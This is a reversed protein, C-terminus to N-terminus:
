HGFARLGLGGALAVGWVLGLIVHGVRKPLFFLLFVQDAIAVLTFFLFVFFDFNGPDDAREGTVEAQRVARGPIELLFPWLVLAASFAYDDTGLPDAGVVLITAPLLLLVPVGLVALLRAHWRYDNSKTAALCDWVLSAYEFRFRLFNESFRKPPM